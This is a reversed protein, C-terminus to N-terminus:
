DGAVAAGLGEALELSATSPDPILDQDFRAM